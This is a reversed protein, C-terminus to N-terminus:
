AALDGIAQGHKRWVADRATYYASDLSNSRKNLKRQQERIAERQVEIATDLERLAEDREADATEITTALAELDFGVTNANSM